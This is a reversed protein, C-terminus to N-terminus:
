QFRVLGCGMIVSNSAGLRSDLQTRRERVLVAKCDSARSLSVWRMSIARLSASRQEDPGFIPSAGAEVVQELQEGAAGGRPRLETLGFLQRRPRWAEVALRLYGGLSSALLQEELVPSAARVVFIARSGASCAAQVWTAMVTRALSM